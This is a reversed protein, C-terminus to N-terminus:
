MGALRAVLTFGIMASRYSYLWLLCLFCLLCLGSNPLLPPRPTGGRCFIRGDRYFEGARGDALKM